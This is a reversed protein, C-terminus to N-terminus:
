GAPPFHAEHTRGDDALTIYMGRVAAGDLTVATTDRAATLQYRSTGFQYVLTVEDWDEPLHPRLTVENGRKDFGLFDRLYVDYLLAASGTYWTWGGRGWRYIDAPLAYPETRFHRASAANFSHNFPLIEHLLTFARDARGNQLLARMFWPVAHTYQGGNERVGPLYAGIYGAKEDPTFPPDLLKTIGLRGDHLKEWANDLATIVQARPMQAFAAFCQSILDIRPVDSDHAGISRKDPYWARIFWADHFAIQLAQHLARQRAQLEKQTERDCLPAFDRLVMLYFFGLWASEGKVADMGDNWDGGGMQPIGRDSLKVYRIARLCHELLTGTELTEEATEYRDHEGEQLVPSRLYPAHAMLISEDGTVQVYRATVYPLFLLDDRIDTRVGAGFPHWWHQVDGELYQRSACLLLHRRVTEPETYLLPLMDQLQDRFGYAGGSQYFGARLMLRSARIQYPLFGNLYSSLMQDPLFFRLRGLRQDWYGRVARLRRRASQLDSLMAQMHAIEECFGLIVAQEWTEGPQLVVETQLIGVTGAHSVHPARLHRAPAYASESVTHAQAGTMCFFSEGKMDSHQAHVSDDSAFVYTGRGDEGMAFRAAACVTLTRVTGGTNRIHIIRVGAPHEADTFCTLSMYLGEAAHEYIAAGPEYAVRAHDTLAHFRGNEAILYEEAPTILVGDQHFRTLRRLRSNGMHSYLIGQECVLTGFAEGPLMHSWPAPTPSDGPIIVYGGEQTFGGFGNFDHLRAIAPLEGSPEGQQLSDPWADADLQPRLPRSADIHLSCLMLAAARFDSDTDTIVRARGQLSRFAPKTLLAECGTRLPQEYDNEEPLLVIAEGPLRHEFLYCLLQLAQQVVPLQDENEATILLFPVDGSVGRSWLARVGKNPQMESQRLGTLTMRACMKLALAIQRADLALLRSLVDSREACLSFARAAQEENEPLATTGLAFYLTEERAASVIVPVRVAACPEATDNMVFDENTLRLGRPSDISGRRGIFLSRDNMLLMPGHIEGLIRLQMHREGGAHSRLRRTIRVDRAGDRDVTMFLNSFAIHASDGKQTELAPELYLTIETRCPTERQNRVRVRYVAAGTLPDVCGSLTIRLDGLTKHVRWEGPLFTMDGSSLHACANEKVARLYLQPGSLAGCLPDFRTLLMDGCALRSHGTCGQLLTTGHGSLIHMDPPLTKQTRVHLPAAPAADRHYLLPKPLTSVRRPALENLLPLHARMSPLSFAIRQLYNDHLANCVACLIMGQHHAMHSCVIRPPDGAAYDESEFFGFAGYVGHQKWKQLAQAAHGPFVSLALAAAYPARTTDCCLGDLAMERIGFAKYAYNLQEDFRAYGAESIGFLGDRVANMQAKVCSARMDHLASRHFAPLFVAPLLYEFMTGSWSMLSKGGSTRTWTRQLRWWHREPIRYLAIGVYSLLMAESALMDYHGETPQNKEADYGIYFLDERRDYLRRLQMRACFQDLRAPINRLQADAEAMYTRACQAASLLCICLNGADVSSVFLPPLPSLATLDYWNYPIGHWLPLKELANLTRDMSRLMDDSDILELKRAACLSAFYMGINTPSTRMAAGRPPSLQVNDPPLFHTKENVHTQYFSFTDRAASLLFDRDSQSLPSPQQIPMDLHVKLLPYALWAAGLMFGPIHLSFGSLLMMAAGLLMSPVIEGLSSLESRDAQAATTWELLKKHSILMRWLARLIADLRTVASVPLLCLQWLAQRSFLPLAALFFPLYAGSKACALLAIVRLLPMLSLRLNDLIKWKSLADLQKLRLFPLLQWDGRTWRHARRLFGQVTRPHGDFCQIDSMLRSSSIEGELLDHSLIRGAPLAHTSELFPQPAYIGKGMFSGRRFLDEYLDNAASHYSDAGGFAGLYEQARTGLHMPLTTMRPQLIVSRGRQLPHYLTCVMKEAAGSPLFTDADLTIVAQYRHRLQQATLTSFALTEHTEEGALLRNLMLLAGRKRESGIFRGEGPDWVRRRHLAHFRVGCADNLAQLGMELAHLIDSDQPTEEGDADAFDSLLMYDFRPSGNSLHLISLQRVMRLAHARDLLLTPVCILFRHGQPLAKKQLRPLPLAPSLRASLRIFLRQFLHAGVFSFPLVGFLPLVFFGAIAFLAFGLVMCAIYLKLAHRRCFSRLGPRKHLFRILADTDELLYYGCEAQAGTQGETLRLAAECIRSEETHLRESLRSVQTLYTERGTDDMRRFTREQSLLAYATGLRAQMRGWQIRSLLRLTNVASGTHRASTEMQERVAHQLQRPELNKERLLAEMRKMADSDGSQLLLDLARSCAIEDAKLMDPRGGASVLTCISQSQAYARCEKEIQPLLAYLYLVTSQTLLDPLARLERVTFPRENQAERVASFISRETLLANEKQVLDRCFAALRAYKAGRYMKEQRRVQETVGHLARANDRLWVAAPPLEERALQCVTKEVARLKRQIFAINTM